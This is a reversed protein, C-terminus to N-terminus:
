LHLAGYIFSTGMCLAGYVSFKLFYALVHAGYMNLPAQFSMMPMYFCIFRSSDGSCLKSPIGPGTKQRVTSIHLGHSEDKSFNPTHFLYTCRM